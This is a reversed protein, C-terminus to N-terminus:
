VKYESGGAYYPTSSGALLEGQVFAFLFGHTGPTGNHTVICRVSRFSLDWTMMVSMLLMWLWGYSVFIRIKKMFYM